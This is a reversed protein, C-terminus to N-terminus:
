AGVGSEDKRARSACANKQDIPTKVSNVSRKTKAITRAGFLEPRLLAAIGPIGSVEEIPLCWEAPTKNDRNLWNWIHQQKIKENGTAARLKKAIAAQGGSKSVAYELANTM